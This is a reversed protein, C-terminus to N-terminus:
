ENEFKYLLYASLNFYMAWAIAIASTLINSLITINDIKFVNMAFMAVIIILALSYRGALADAKNKNSVFREDILINSMKGLYYFSFFGFFAFWLFIQPAPIQANYSTLKQFLGSFGFFGFFGFLAHKSNIKKTHTLSKKNFLGLM